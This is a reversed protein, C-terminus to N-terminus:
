LAGLVARAAEREAPDASNLFMDAMAWKHEIAAQHAKNVPYAKPKKPKKPKLLKGSYVAIGDVSKVLQIGCSPNAPRDVLSLEIVSGGVIRGAKAINDRQVLAGSIGVSYATLVGKRVLEKAEGEVVLSKVWTAGMSDTECSVGKGVPRRADHGLRVNGGTDLWERIAKAAWQPDAIQHQLDLTGDSARGYVLVDGGATDSKTLIPFSFYKAARKSAACDGTSLKTM